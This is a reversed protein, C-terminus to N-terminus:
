SWLIVGPYFPVETVSQVSQDGEEELLRLADFLDVHTRIRGLTRPVTTPELDKTLGASEPCHMMIGRLYRMLTKM